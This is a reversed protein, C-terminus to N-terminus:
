ATQDGESNEMILIIKMQESLLTLERVSIQAAWFGKGPMLNIRFM